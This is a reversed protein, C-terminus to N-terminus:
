AALARMVADPERAIVALLIRATRDPRRRHQEWAQLAAIDLGFARAFQAQSLGLRVRLAAVDVEDPVAVQYSPLTVEGRLHAAVERAAGAIRQGLATREASAASRVSRQPM